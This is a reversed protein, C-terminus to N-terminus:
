LIKRRRVKLLVPTFALSIVAVAAGGGLVFFMSTPAMVEFPLSGVVFAHPQPFAMAISIALLAVAPIVLAWPSWRTLGVAAVIVIFGIIVAIAVVPDFAYEFAQAARIQGSGLGWAITGGGLFLLLPALILGVVASATGRSAPRRRSGYLVVGMAGMVAYLVPPLGTAISAYWTVPIVLTVVRVVEMQVAPMVSLVLAIIGLVGVALLGSSSWLGTLVVGALLVIGLLQLGAPGLTAVIDFGAESARAEEMEVRWASGGSGLLATGIPTVIIALLIATLRAFTSSRQM